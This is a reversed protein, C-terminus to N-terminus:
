GVLSMFAPPLLHKLGNDICWRYLASPTPDYGDLVSLKERLQEDSWRQCLVIHRQQVFSSPQGTPLGHEGKNWCQAHHRCLPMSDVGKSGPMDFIQVPGDMCPADGPQSCGQKELWSRYNQGFGLATLVARNYFFGNVRLLHLGEAARKQGEKLQKIEAPTAHRAATDLASMDDQVLIQGPQTTLSAKRIEVHVLADLYGTQNLVCVADASPGNEAFFQAVQGANSAAPRKVRGVFEAVKPYGDSSKMLRGNRDKLMWLSVLVPADLYRTLHLATITDADQGNEGFIQVTLGTSASKTRRLFGTFEGVREGPEMSELGPLVDDYDNKIQSPAKQKIFHPNM